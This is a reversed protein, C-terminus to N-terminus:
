CAPVAGVRLERSSGNHGDLTARVTAHPPAGPACLGRSAVRLLGDRGGALTLRLSTIPMDPLDVFRTAIPGYKPASTTARLSLRVGMGRVTTWLEPDAGSRPEVVNVTGVLAHPLLPTRVRASGVVSAAPCRGERARLQTCVAIGLPPDLVLARPLQLTATRVTAQDLQSRLAIAVTPRGGHRLERRPGLQMAVAPAFRLRACSGLAYRAAAQSMAADPSTFVATARSPACSTANRMFGPRDIDLALTRLRLPVGGLLQPLPDTTVTVRADAPDIRLGALVVADGLDIPGIQGALTLALGFPAGAHPGTLYVDGLLPIPESGAGAEVALRGVRSDAPCAMRAALSAPCRAASALRASVGLPLTLALRELTQEGDARTVTVSFPASAGAGVRTSGAVFGPAFPATSACPAGGPGAALELIAARRVPAGGGRAAINAVIAGPECAPPTALPARPGDKFRLRLHSVPLQPLGDFAIALRGTGPDPRLSGTLKITSGRGTAVGLLRFRDSPLPTGLYIAGTLPAAFGPVTVEVAGLKAADPCRPTEASGLGFDADDCASLGSAVGPSLTLGGPLTATLGAPQSPARGEPDDAHPLAVDIALGSPTDADMTDLTASVSPAFALQDCGAIPGALPSTAQLWRDPQQWSRVHMVTELQGGCATPNTLLASRPIGTGSQHDAPVGWLEIGAAVLPVSQPLDSLQIEVGDDSEDRLRAVMRVPLSGVFTDFEAFEDARAAVNYIPRSESGFLGVFRPHLVGVQSSAPCARQIFVSRACAPAATPDGAFGPPLDIVIDRVNGDATGDAHRSLAFRALFRDPHAGARLEPQGSADLPATEFSGPVIAFDARARGPNAVLALLLAVLAASRWRM